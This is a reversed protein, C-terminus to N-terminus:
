KSKKKTKKSKKKNVEISLVDIKKKCYPCYKFELSIKKSCNNCKIIKFNKKWIKEIIEESLYRLNEEIEDIYKDYLTKKPRFILYFIIGFPGLIILFLILLIQLFLNDTRNLIDNIGWIVIAIWIVLFYLVWFIIVSKLTIVEMLYDLIPNWSNM